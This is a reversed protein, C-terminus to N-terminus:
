DDKELIGKIKELKKKDNVEKLQEIIEKKISDHTNYLQQLKKKVTKEGIKNIRKEIDNLKEEGKEDEDLSRIIKQIQKYSYEGFTNKLMFSDMLLYYINTAYTNKNNEIIKSDNKMEIAYVGEPLIDTVIFPSHSTLVIQINRDEFKNLTNLLIDVFKRALEPHLARDPEDILLVLSDEKGIEYVANVCKAIIDLFIFEGESTKPFEINILESLRNTENRENNVMWKDYCRLLNIIKGDPEELNCIIRIKREDIFFENPLKEILDVFELIAEKDGITAVYKAVDQVRNLVYELIKRLDFSGDNKEYEKIEYLLNAYEKQFFSTTDDESSNENDTRIRYVEEWKTYAKIFEFVSKDVVISNNIDIKLKKNWGTLEKLFYYEILEVYLKQLFMYKSDNVKEIKIGNQKGLFKYREDRLGFISNLEEKRDDLYNEIERKENYFEIKANNKIFMSKEYSLQNDLEKFIMYYRYKYEYKGEEFYYRREFMYDTNNEINDNGVRYNYRDSTIYAYKLDTAIKNNDRWTRIVSDCYIFNGNELKFITGIATKNSVYGINQKKMDINRIKWYGWLFSDDVFEFVFYEEYLHYLMFYSCDTRKNSRIDKIRDGRHMGLIDLLTSKGMGNQGLFMVINNVNKGYYDKITNQNKEVELYGNNYTATFNSSFNIETEKFVNKYQRIYLYILEM